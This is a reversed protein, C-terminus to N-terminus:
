GVAVVVAVVAVVAVIAVVAVTVNGGGCNANSENKLLFLQVEPSDNNRLNEDLVLQVVNNDFQAAEMLLFMNPEILDKGTLRSLINILDNKIQEEKILNKEINLSGFHEKLFDIRYNQGSKFLAQVKKEKIKSENLELRLIRIRLESKFIGFFTEVVSQDVKKMLNTLDVKAEELKLRLFDIKQNLRHSVVNM